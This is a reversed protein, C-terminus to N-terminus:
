HAVRRWSDCEAVVGGVMLFGRVGRVIRGSELDLSALDYEEPRWWSDSPIACLVGGNIPDPTWGVGRIAGFSRRITAPRLDVLVVESSDDRRCLIRGAGADCLPALGALRLEKVVKTRPDFLVLHGGLACVVGLDGVRVPSDLFAASEIEVEGIVGSSDRLDQWVLRARRPGVMRWLVITHGDDAAVGQIGAYRRAEVGRILDYVVVEREGQIPAESYVLFRAGMLSAPANPGGYDGISVLTDIQASSLNISVIADLRSCVLCGSKDWTAKYRQCSAATLWFLCM